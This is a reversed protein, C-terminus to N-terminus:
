ALDEALLRGGLLEMEAFAPRSKMGTPRRAVPLFTGIRRREQSSHVDPDQATEQCSEIQQSLVKPSWSPRSLRPWSPRLAHFRRRPTVSRFVDGRCRGILGVDYLRRLESWSVGLVANHLRNRPNQTGTCGTKRLGGPLARGLDAPKRLVRLSSCPISSVGASTRDPGPPQAEFSVPLPPRRPPPHRAIACPLALDQSHSVGM